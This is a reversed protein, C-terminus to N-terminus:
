IPGQGEYMQVSCHTTREIQNIDDTPGEVNSEKWQMIMVKSTM